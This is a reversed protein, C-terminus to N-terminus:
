GREDTRGCRLIFSYLGEHTRTQSGVNGALAPVLAGMGSRNRIGEVPKEYWKTYNRMRVPASIIGLAAFGHSVRGVYRSTEADMGSQVQWLLEPTFTELRPDRNAIMLTALIGSIHNKQSAPSYGLSTLTDTLRQLEQYYFIQGFIASAYVAAKRIDPLSLPDHLDALHWAFAAMLPRGERIEWCLTQWREQQWRWYPIGSLHMERLLGAIVLGAIKSSCGSGAAIDMLPRILDPAPKMRLMRSRSHSSTLATQEAPTLSAQLRYATIDFTYWSSEIPIDLNM